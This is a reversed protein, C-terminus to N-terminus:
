PSGCIICHTMAIGYHIDVVDVHLPPWHSIGFSRVYVCIYIYMYTHMYLAAYLLGSIHM